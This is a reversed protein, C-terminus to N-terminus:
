KGAPSNPTVTINDIWAHQEQPAFSYIGPCGQENAHKHPVEINWEAPEADSKKWVKARIIGSGDAAVDVRTKFHYWENATWKFPVAQHLREFNSSVDIEQGNGKLIILYRQNILGVESMKRKNGDTRVDAEVTYNKFDPHGIFVQARQFFKNDTTKCLAKNEGDGPAKRIDFKFRAANWPLPPYAFPTPPEIINWNTPGPTVPPAGAAAPAPAKASADPSQPKASSVAATTTPPLPTAAPDAPAPTGGPGPGTMLTLEADEFDLKLPLAQLIRGRMVGKLEGAVAQFAGASPVPAPDATLKGNAYSGKMTAKVLATPPIFPEMQVKAPDVKEDVTFGNADLSRFRMPISEGPRLYAENPIIQLRAAPGVAPTQEAAAQAYAEAVAEAKPNAGKKGFCYLKRDTQVYLKGNFGIPSGYCRGELVTRSLVEADTDGPKLVWLEGNGGGAAGEEAAVGAAQTGAIYVAVYLKGDAYFPASQRQEPAVKKRWLIKGSDADVAAVEGVGTVEYMRNGVLCPSSALNGIPNRWLELDKFDFPQPKGPEPPHIDKPLRYAASRGVESTDLNESEHIVLLSDKYRLVGANIGGKAGAKAAPFRFLPDGTRVNLGVVSSDGSASILVHKGDIWTLLPPSFTNDQPREGPTSSWVLEGTVKDFAYFRDGAPGSAGWNATIGRTIVLDKDLIPSATRSNPFTMRGFEEMMSHEWLKKGDATFCAFIGQTGQMYVNGTEADVAPSSTAYRLYITDSLFDNFRHEWLKKGTEADFCAIAEQLDPGEGLYGNIYLKGNAIVPSSQGPFDATWLTSKAEIKDPLGTEQSTGNQNPGRWSLWGTVAAKASSATKAPAAPEAGKKPTAAWAAPLAIALLLCAPASLPRLKM